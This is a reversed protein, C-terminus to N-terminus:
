NAIAMLKRAARMMMKRKRLQRLRRQARAAAGSGRAMRM